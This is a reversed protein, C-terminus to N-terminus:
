HNSPTVVFDNAAICLGFFAKIEDVSPPSLNAQGKHRSNSATYVATKEIIENSVFLQFYDLCFFNNLSEITPGPEPIAYDEPIVRNFM